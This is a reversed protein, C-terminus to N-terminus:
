NVWAHAHFFCNDPNHAKIKVGHQQAMLGFAQKAKINEESIETTQFIAYRFRTAQDVFITVINYRKTTM